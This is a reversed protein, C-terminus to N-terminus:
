ICLHYQYTYQLTSIAIVAITTIIHIMNIIIRNMMTGFAEQMHKIETTLVMLRKNVISEYAVILQRLTDLDAHTHSGLITHVESSSVGREERLVRTLQGELTELRSPVDATIEQMERKLDNLGNRLMTAAKDKFQAFLHKNPPVQVEENALQQQQQVKVTKISVPLSLDEQEILEDLPGLQIRLVKGGDNKDITAQKIFKLDDKIPEPINNQDKSSSACSLVLCLLFLPNRFKM